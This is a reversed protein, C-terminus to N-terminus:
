LTECFSKTILKSLVVLVKLLGTTTESSVPCGGSVRGPQGAKEGSLLETTKWRWVTALVSPLSASLIAVREPARAWIRQVLRVSVWCTVTSFWSLPSVAAPVEYRGVKGGPTLMSQSASPLWTPLRVGSWLSSTFM